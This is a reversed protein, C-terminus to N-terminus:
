NQRVFNFYKSEPGKLFLKEARMLHSRWFCCQENINNERPHFLAQHNSLYFVTKLADQFLPLSKEKMQLHLFWSRPIGILQGLTWSSKLPLALALIGEM